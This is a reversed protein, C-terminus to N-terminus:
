TQAVSAESSSSQSRAASMMVVEKTVVIINNKVLQNVDGLTRHALGWCQQLLWGCHEEEIWWSVCWVIMRPFERWKSKFHATLNALYSYIYIYLTNILFSFPFCLILNTSPGCIISFSLGASTIACGIKSASKCNTRCKYCDLDCFTLQM